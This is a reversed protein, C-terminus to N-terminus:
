DVRRGPPVSGLDREIQRAPMSQVHLKYHTDVDDLRRDSVAVKIAGCWFALVHSSPRRQQIDLENGTSKGLGKLYRSFWQVHQKYNYLQRRDADIWKPGTSAPGWRGSHLQYDVLLQHFTVWVVPETPSVLTQLWELVSSLEQIRFKKPFDSSNLKALDILGTDIALNLGAAPGTPPPAVNAPMATSLVRQGISTMVSHWAKGFVRLERLEEVLTESVRLVKAPMTWRADSACKDAASNGRVAWEDVLSPQNSPDAHAQVKHVGRLFRFSFRFQDRLLCWLDADQKKHIPVDFGRHWMDLMAFVQQNDIWLRGERAVFTLLKLASVAAMIEARLSTQKWGPLGGSSVQAFKTGTWQVVGWSALRTFPDHPRVCSGDVFLDRCPLDSAVQDLCFFKGTTDPMQLLAQRFELQHPARPIWGHCLTCLPMDVVSSMKVHQDRIDQFFPCQVHRHFLSDVQGCFRCQPSDTKGAHFLADNTYQTGNLNCRLLGQREQPQSRFLEKTLRVDAMSFDQTTTREQQTIGQVHQQWAQIVRETLESKPCRLFWIPLNDQDYCLDGHDWRWALSHIAALFSKCPGPTTNGKDLIQRLTFQAMDPAHFDRFSYITNLVCFLEPDTIPHSVCSLQVLPSSGMQHVNLARTAQTRLKQFHCQGLGVTSIGYFMNPWAAVYLAREKQTIPACSRALKSWLQSCAAIKDQITCNTIMKTYNMHGGLGRSYFKRNVGSDQILKRGTPCNSWAFSKTPDIQLDLLQCFDSMGQTAELAEHATAALAQIDDVFSWIQVRPFRHYMYVELALNCIVMSVVSLGCGEPYGTSSLLPRGTSGRVQFRRSMQKLGQNWPIIVEDPIGLHSAVDQLVERPLTNFCKVLDITSGAIEMNGAYAHEVCQQIHYWVQKPSRGPINGILSHPVLDKLFNLCQRARVSSWTRYVLSFICIPRYHRTGEAEPTKALAAVTGTMVQNPWERGSEVERILQLLQNLTSAPMNLLDQKSVGDPGVAAGKRKKAVTRKWLVPDIPPFTAKHKPMAAKLFDIAAQWEEAPVNDHKKWRPAWEAEFADLIAPIDGILQKVQVQNGLNEASATPLTFQLENRVQIQVPIHNIDVSAIGSPLPERLTVVTQDPHVEELHAVPLAKTQVLSQVAEARDRQIDKYIMMPDHVRRQKAFDHRAMRLSNELQRYHVSFELFLNDAVEANPPATPINEPTNPLSHTQQKWWEAFDTGFGTAFRIKRWLNAKHEMVNVTDETSRAIRSFHQLRRIQKTWRSHTMNSCALESQVDGRRNPKVPATQGRSWVVEKTAARGRQHAQLKPLGVLTHVHDAFHEVDEWLSQYWRDMDDQPAAQCIWPQEQQPLKPWQIPKPKRWMPVLPPRDIDSLTVLIVAHDPFTTWNLQIDEVYPVMEPSLYLYDKITTKRCTCQLPKQWRLYALQQAEVWGQAEWHDAQPLNSRELNWDGSIMRMGTSGNVIRSTLGQLLRDTHQQVEVSHAGESYGYVTGMTVWRQNIFAATALCRGTAFDEPSWHHVLNRLPFHSVYAVGTQKGGLTRISQNKPPAPAGHTFHFNTNQWTLEKKFRGIGQATLHTEQVAYTASFPSLAALTASKGMLGTTNANAFVHPGPVAAEGLRISTAFFVFLLCLTRYLKSVVPLKSPPYQRACPQLGSM